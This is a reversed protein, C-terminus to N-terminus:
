SKISLLWLYAQLCIRGMVLGHVSLMSPERGEAKDTSALPHNQYTVIFNNGM